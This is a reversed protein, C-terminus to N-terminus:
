SQIDSNGCSGALGCSGAIHTSTGCACMAGGGCVSNWGNETAPQIRECRECARAPANTRATQETAKTPSAAHICRSSAGAGATIACDAVLSGRRAGGTTVGGGAGAVTNV